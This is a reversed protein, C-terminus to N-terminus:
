SVKPHGYDPAGEAQSHRETQPACWGWCCWGDRCCGRLHAQTTRCAREGTRASLYTQADAFDDTSLMAAKEFEAMEDKIDQMQDCLAFLDMLKDFAKEYSAGTEKISAILSAVRKELSETLLTDDKEVQDRLKVSSSIRRTVWGHCSTLSAKAQEVIHTEVECGLLEQELKTLFASIRVLLHTPM